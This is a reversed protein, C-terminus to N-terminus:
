KYYFTVRFIHINHTISSFCFTYIYTSKHLCSKRLFPNRGKFALLQISVKLSGSSNLLSKQLWFRYIRAFRFVRSSPRSLLLLKLTVHPGLPLPKTQIEGTFTDPKVSKLLFRDAAAGSMSYKIVKQLKLTANKNGTPCGFHPPDVEEVGIQVNFPWM